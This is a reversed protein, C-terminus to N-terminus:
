PAPAQDSVIARLASDAAERVTLYRTAKREGHFQARWPKGSMDVSATVAQNTLAILTSELADMRHTDALADRLKPLLALVSAAKSAGLKGPRGAAEWVKEWEDLVQMASKKWAELERVELQLKKVEDFLSVNIQDQNANPLSSLIRERLEAYQARVDASAFDSCNVGLRSAVKVLFIDSVQMEKQMMGLLDTATFRDPCSRMAGDDFLNKM